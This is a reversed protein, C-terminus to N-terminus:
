KKIIELLNMVCSEMNGVTLVFDQKEKVGNAYEAPKWNPMNCITELLVRDINKDKSSEYIQADVTQGDRNISFKVAALYKNNLSPDSIKDIATEKVYKYFHNQGGIFTAENEPDVKFTFSMEKPENFKLNNNPMYKVLVSVDSGVDISKLNEKQESTLIDNRSISKKIKGKQITSIEVSYYEKVWAPKYNKNLDLLDQAKILMEKSISFSSSTRFVAFMLEGSTKSESFVLDPLVFSMFPFIFIILTYKKVINM